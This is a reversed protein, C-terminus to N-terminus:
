DWDSNSNSHCIPCSSGSNLFKYDEGGIQDEVHLGSPVLGLSKHHFKRLPSKSTSPKAGVEAPQVIICPKKPTDGMEWINTDTCTNVWTYQTLSQECALIVTVKVFQVPKKIKLKIIM